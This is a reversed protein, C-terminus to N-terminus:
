HATTQLPALLLLPPSSPHASWSMTPPLVCIHPSRCPITRPTTSTTGFLYATLTNYPAWFVSVFLSPFLALLFFIAILLTTLPSVSSHQHPQAM